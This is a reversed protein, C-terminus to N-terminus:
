LLPPALEEGIANLLKIVGEEKGVIADIGAARAFWISIKL